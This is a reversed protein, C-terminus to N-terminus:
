WCVPSSWAIFSSEALGHDLLYDVEKRLLERKRPNFRYVHQKMPPAGGVNIDHEIVSTRTAVDPFLAPFSHVLGIIDALHSLYIPMDALYESNRLRGEVVAQSTCKVWEDLEESVSGLRGGECGVTSLAVDPVIAGEVPLSVILGVPASLESTVYPKLLNIHCVQVKKHRDPTSFLYNYDPLCKM